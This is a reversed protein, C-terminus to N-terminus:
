GEKHRAADALAGGAARMARLAALGLELRAYGAGMAASIIAEYIAEESLGARLLAAIDGDTVKYANLAVKRTLAALRAVAEGDAAGAVGAGPQGGPQEGPQEGGAAAQAFIAERAASSLAGKGALAAERLAAMQARLRENM